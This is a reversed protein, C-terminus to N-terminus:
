ATSGLEPLWGERYASREEPGWRAYADDPSSTEELVSADHKGAVENVPFVVEFRYTGNAPAKWAPGSVLCPPIEEASFYLTLGVLVVVATLALAAGRVWVRRM